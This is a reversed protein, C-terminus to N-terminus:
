GATPSYRESVAHTDLFQGLATFREWWFREYHHRVWEPVDGLQEPNFRVM